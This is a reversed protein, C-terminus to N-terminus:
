AAAASLIQVDSFRLNTPLEPSMEVSLTGEFVVECSEASGCRADLKTYESASLALAPLWGHQAPRQIPFAAVTCADASQCLARHRTVTWRLRLGQWRHQVDNWTGHREAEDLERALDAQTARALQPRAPVPPSAPADSGGRCALLMTSAFLVLVPTHNTM